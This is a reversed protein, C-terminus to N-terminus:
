RWADPLWQSAATISPPHKGEELAKRAGDVESARTSGGGARVVERPSRAGVRRRSRHAPSDGSSRHGRGRARVEPRASGACGPRPRDHPMGHRGRLTALRRGAAWQAALVDGQDGTGRLRRPGARARLGPRARGGRGGARDGSRAHAPRVEPARAPQQRGSRIVRRELRAADAPRGLQTYRGVLLGYLKPTNPWSTAAAPALRMSEDTRGAEGYAIAELAALDDGSVPEGVYTTWPVLHDPKAERPAAVPPPRRQIWHDTITVLPVTAPPGARMHCEVCHGGRAAREAPPATCPREAHCANCKGDWYSAPEEISSRHPDHCSTCTLKGGSEKWCASRVMREPHELLGYRDPEIPDGVFNVRYSGVPQGPRYAFDHVGARLESRNSEHCQVCVDLQRATPLREPDVIDERSATEVHRAGPGHCRECGVGAPMPDFFVDAVTASRRPYDSHCSICFTELTNGFRANGKSFGPDVDWRGAKTYYDIPVHVNRHGRRFYFAMGYSGASLAHTLEQTWSEVRTGDAALLSEEIYYHNGRRFPRYDFGSRAQRVPTKSGEDFIKALWGADLSSLPRLGTRAMSHRAYTEYLKAHCPKCAASGVYGEEALGGEPTVPVPQTWDIPGDDWSLLGLPDPAQADAAAVVSTSPVLPPTDTHRRRLLVVVAVAIAAAIALALWRQRSSVASHFQLLSGFCAPM